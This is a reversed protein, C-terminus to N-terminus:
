SLDLLDFVVSDLDVELLSDHAMFTVFIVKGSQGHFDEGDEFVAAQDRMHPLLQFPILTAIFVCVALKPGM